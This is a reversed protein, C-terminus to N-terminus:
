PSTTTPPIPEQPRLRRAETIAQNGDGAEGCVVIDEADALLARVGRRVVFHDDVVLVSIFHKM